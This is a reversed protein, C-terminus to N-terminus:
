PEVAWTVEWPFGEQSPIDRLAQRYAAWAAQDVPADAVQTWDSATLKRNREDRVKAAEKATKAATEAAIEEDTKDEVRVTFVQGNELYADCPVLRQTETHSKWVSVGVLGNEAMFEASIGTVPFSTNPFMARYDAVQQIADNEIKAILM